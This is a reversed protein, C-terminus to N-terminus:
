EPWRGERIRKRPFHVTEADNAIQVALEALNQFREGIVFEVVDGEDTETVKGQFVFPIGSPQPFKSFLQLFVFPHFKPCNTAIVIGGSEPRGKGRGVDAEQFVPLGYSQAVRLNQREAPGNVSVAVPAQCFLSISFEPAQRWDVKQNAVLGQSPLLQASSPSFFILAPHRPTRSFLRIQAMRGVEQSDFSNHGAVPMVEEIGNQASNL